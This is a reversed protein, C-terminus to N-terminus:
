RWLGIEIRLDGLHEGVVRALEDGNGLGDGSELHPFQLPNHYTYKTNRILCQTTHIYIEDLYKSLIDKSALVIM